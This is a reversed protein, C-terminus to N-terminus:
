RLTLQRTDGDLQSQLSSRTRGLEIHLSSTTDAGANGRDRLHRGVGGGAAPVLVRPLRFSRRGLLDLPYNPGQYRDVLVRHFALERNGAQQHVARGHV